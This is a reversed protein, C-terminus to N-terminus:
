RLFVNERHFRLYNTHKTEFSRLRMTHNIGLQLLVEKGLKSCILISGGDEFSILGKDFAIDLNPLLLLGNYPDLREINTSEKWPKIHSARLLEIVRCGTVACSGWYKVLAGRFRGQGIRSDIIAKRTTEDLSEYTTRHQELEILANPEQQKAFWELDRIAELESIFEDEKIPNLGFRFIQQSRLFESFWSFDNLRIQPDFVIGESGFASNKYGGDGTEEITDVLFVSCLRYERPRGEGSILWITDDVLHSVPKNTVISFSAADAPDIPYGIVETNHYVVYHKM